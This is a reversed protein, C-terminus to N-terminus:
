LYLFIICLRKHLARCKGITGLFYDNNSTDWGCHSLSFTKTLKFINEEGDKFYSPIIHQKM